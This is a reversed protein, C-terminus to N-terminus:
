GLEYNGGKMEDGFEDGFELAEGSPHQLTSPTKAIPMIVNSFM